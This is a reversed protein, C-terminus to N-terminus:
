ADFGKWRVHRVGDKGFGDWRGRKEERGGAREARTLMEAEQEHQTHDSRESQPSQSPGEQPLTDQLPWDSAFLLNEGVMGKETAEIIEESPTPIPFTAPPTIPTQLTSADDTDGLERAKGTPVGMFDIMWAIQRGQGLVLMGCDHANSRAYTSVDPSARIMLVLDVSPDDRLFHM